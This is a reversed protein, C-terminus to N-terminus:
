DPQREPPPAAKLPFSKKETQDGRKLVLTAVTEVFSGALQSTMPEVEMSEGPQLFLKEPRVVFNGLPSVFDAIRLEVAVEGRNTFRLHILVPRGGGGMAGPRPGSFERSPRGGEGFPRDGSVSGGFGGGTGSVSVRNGGRRGGGPGGPGGRREGDGGERPRAEPMGETGVHVEAFVQGGFFEEQGAMPTFVRRPAQGERRVPRPDSGCGAVFVSILMAAPVLGARMWPRLPHTM